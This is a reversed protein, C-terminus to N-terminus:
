KKNYHKRKYDKALSLMKEPVQLNVHEYLRILQNPRAIFVTILKRTNYNIIYIIANQTVIHLEPGNEHFKNVFFIKDIPANKNLTIALQFRELRTKSFHKSFNEELIKELIIDNKTYLEVKGFQKNECIKM